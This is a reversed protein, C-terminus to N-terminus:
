RGESSRGTGQVRRRRRWPVSARRVRTGRSPRDHRSSAAPSPWRHPLRAPRCGAGCSGASSAPAPACGPAEAVARTPPRLGLALVAAVAALVAVLGLGWALTTHEAVVGILSPGALFGTYGITSVFAVAPGSGAGGNGAGAGSGTDGGNGAISLVIPFACAVGLGAVAFAALTTVRDASVLGVALAVAMATCGLQLTGASGRAAIVREGGFRGVAMAGAFAAYGMAALGGGAELTDTFYLASWDAMAGEGFAACFAVLGCIVLVPTARVGQAAPRSARATAPAALVLRAAWAVSAAGAAGTGALQPAAGVALGAVLGGALAGALGGLSFWGHFSPMIPRGYAREVSIAEVNMSVDLTGMTAGVLLLAAALQPVDVALAPLPITACCGFGAAIAVGRGGRRECLWGAVPMALMSGVAIGLLALGLEAEGAGVRDRADPVRTVWSAFLAGNVFFLVSVGLRARRDATWRAPRRSAERAAERCGAAERAAERGSGVAKGTPRAKQQRGRWPM